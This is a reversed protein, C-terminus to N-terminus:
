VGRASFSVTRLSVEYNICYHPHILSREVDGVVGIEGGERLLWLAAQPGQLDGAQQHPRHRHHQGEQAADEQHGLDDLPPSARRSLGAYHDCKLKDPLYLGRRLSSYYWIDCRRM